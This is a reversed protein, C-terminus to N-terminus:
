NSLVLVGAAGTRTSRGIFWSDATPEPCAAAALGVLDDVGLSLSEAAAIAAPQGDAAAGTLLPSEEAGRVDTVALASREADGGDTLRAVGASAIATADQSDRGLARFAGTCALVTDSAAPVAEIQAPTE